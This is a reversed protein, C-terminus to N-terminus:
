DNIIPVSLKIITGQKPESLVEVLGDVLVAREKMGLLGFSKEPRKHSTDFGNGKDQISMVMKGNAYNLQTDVETVNAHKAVNNLAEQYIRFIQISLLKSFEPEKLNIKLHCQIGTHKTFENAQWEIAAFLGLDDIIQPRLDTNIRRITEVTDNVLALASDIKQTTEDNRSEIRGGLWAIDMKLRILQQGLEDHLERSISAREEERIIQLHTSLDRLEENMQIIRAEALEKATRIEWKEMARIIATPLRQLNSKLIYDSTGQKMMDVAFEESVTGTILIFPITSGSERLIKIAQTSNFSPLSHDSLIIDPSFDKIAKIFETKTSVVQKIFVLNQRKLEREVLEADTIMDELHLIKLVNEM